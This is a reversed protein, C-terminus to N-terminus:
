PPVGLGLISPGSTSVVFVGAVMLNLYEYSPSVGNRFPILIAGLSSCCHLSCSNSSSCFPYMPGEAEGNPAGIKITGLGFSGM